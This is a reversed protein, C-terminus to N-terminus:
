LKFIVLVQFFFRIKRASSCAPVFIHEIPHYKQFNLILKLNNPQASFYVKCVACQESGATIWSLYWQSIHFFVATNDALSWGLIRGFSEVIIARESLISIPLHLSPRGTNLFSPSGGRNRKTGSPLVWHSIELEVFSIEAQTFLPFAVFEGVDALAPALALLPTVLHLYKSRPQFSPSM